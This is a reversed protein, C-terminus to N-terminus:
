GAWVTPVRLHFIIILSVKDYSSTSKVGLYESIKDLFSTLRDEKRSSPIIYWNGTIDAGISVTVSDDIAM